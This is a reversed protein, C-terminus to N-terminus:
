GSFDKRKVSKKLSIIKLSWSLLTSLHRWTPLNFSFCANVIVSFNKKCLNSLKKTDGWKWQCFLKAVFDQARSKHCFFHLPWYLIVGVSVGKTLGHAPVWNKTNAMASKQRLFTMNKDCFLWIKTAFSNQWHFHPHVM